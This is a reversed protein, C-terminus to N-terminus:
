RIKDIKPLFKGGTVLNYASDSITCAHDGIREISKAIFLLHTCYTIMRGDEIMYTLLERFCAAYSHDLNNDYEWASLILKEDLKMFAYLSNKIIESAMKLMIRLSNIPTKPSSMDEILLMKSAINKINDGIFELENAIKLYIIASRLDNAVPHRLALFNFISNEIKNTISNIKNDNEIIERYANKSKEENISNILLVLQEEIMIGSEFIMDLISKLKKDFSKVIHDKNM